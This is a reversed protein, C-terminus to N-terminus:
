IELQDYLTRIRRYNLQELAVNHMAVNDEITSMDKVLTVMFEQIMTDLKIPQLLHKEILDKSITTVEEVV